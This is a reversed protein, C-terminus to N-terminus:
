INQIGEFQYKPERIDKAAIRACEEIIKEMPDALDVGAAAIDVTISATFTTGGKIGKVRFNAFVGEKKKSINIFRIVNNEALNKM